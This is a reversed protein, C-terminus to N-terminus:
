DIKNILEQIDYLLATNKQMYHQFLTDQKNLETTINKENLKTGFTTKHPSHSLINDLIKDGLISKYHSTEWFWRMSEIKNVPIDETIFPSLDTFDYLATHPFKKTIKVLDKKWDLFEGWLGIEHFTMLQLAHVPSIFIILKIEEELCIKILQSLQQLRFKSHPNTSYNENNRIVRKNLTNQILAYQGITSIKKTFTLSGNKQGSAHKSPLNLKKYKLARFSKEIAEKSLREKFFSLFDNNSNDFRSLNFDASTTRTTSFLSYDLALVLLEPKRHKVITEFVKYTESFSSGALSANYVNLEGWLKNNPDIGIESRSSGLIFANYDGETIAIAKSTRSGGFYIGLATSPIFSKLKYPNVYFSLSIASICLLSFVSSFILIYKQTGM